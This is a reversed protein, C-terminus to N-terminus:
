TRWWHQISARFRSYLYSMALLLVGLAAFAAMRYLLGLLWVDFLYLKLVVLGILGVGLMRNLASPRMVGAAVLAVAYAALLISIATSQVSRVNQPLANRAAWGTAELCLACLLVFHGAVYAALAAPGEHAWWAAAMLSAAAVLFTLFRVNLLTTYAVGSFMTSDVALLRALVLVFIFVSGTVALKEGLRRGIWALAAAELSWAMTVRYGAFQVPAALVLLVWAAGAALTAGRRDRDWLLQAAGMYAVALAVTFLGALPPLPPRLLEYGAAFYLAANAALLLLDPFRLPLGRRCARYVPWALFLVFGATVCALEAWEPGHHGWDAYGMWFGALAAPALWELDRLNALILGAIALILLPAFAWMSPGATNAATIGALVQAVLLVAPIRGAAFTGYLALAFITFGLHEGAAAPLQTGYLLMTGALSMVELARWRRALWLGGAGLLLTYALVFWPSRGTDLLLPTAYGGALGLTAIAAGAYRLALLGAGATTLAMLGFAAPQGILRYLAFAAWVSLYVFGIGAGTLAQAYTKHRDRWLWEAFAMAAGGAALGLLVRGLETIWHNEFAYKFFFAVGIVLTMAGIRSIWTLGFISELDTSGQEGEAPEVV